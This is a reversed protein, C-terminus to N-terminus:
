TTYTYSLYASAAHVFTNLGNAWLRSGESDIRQVQWGVDGSATGPQAFMTYVYSGNEKVIRTYQIPITLQETYTVTDAQNVDYVVRAYKRQGQDQSDNGQVIADWDGSPLHMYSNREAWSAQRDSFSM